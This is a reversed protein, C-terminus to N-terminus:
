RWLAVMWFDVRKGNSNEIPQWLDACLGKDEFSEIWSDRQRIASDEHATGYTDLLEEGCGTLRSERETAGISAGSILLLWAPICVALPIIMQEIRM